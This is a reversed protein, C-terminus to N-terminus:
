LIVYNGRERGETWIRGYVADQDRSLERGRKDNIMDNCPYICIRVCIYLSM